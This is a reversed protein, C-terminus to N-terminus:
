NSNVKSTRSSNARLVVANIGAYNRNPLYGEDVLLALAEERTRWLNPGALVNSILERFSKIRSNRRVVAGAYGEKKSYRAHMLKFDWSYGAVYSELLYRNWSYGVQPYHTFVDLKKLPMYDQQGLMDNIAEDVETINFDIMDNKVFRSESVRLMVEFVARWCINSSNVYEAFSELEQMSLEDRSGCFNRFVDEVNSNLSIVSGDFTFKDKLIFGLSRSLEQTTFDEISMSTYPLDEAILNRLEEVTIFENQKLQAIIIGEIQKVEDPTLLNPAYFYTERATSIFEKPSLAKLHNKIVDAPIYLLKRHIEECTLPRMSSRLLENIDNVVENESEVYACNEELYYRGGLKASLTKTTNIFTSLTKIFAEITFLQSQYMLGIIFLQARCVLAHSYKCNAGSADAIIKSFLEAKTESQELAFGCLSLYYVKFRDRDINEWRSGYSFNEGLMGSLGSLKVNCVTMSPVFTTM